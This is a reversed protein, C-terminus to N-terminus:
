PKGEKIQKRIKPFTELIMAVLKTAEDEEMYTNEYEGLIDISQWTTARQRPDFLFPGIELPKMNQKGEIDRLVNQAADHIITPNPM